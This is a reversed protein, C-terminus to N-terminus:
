RGMKQETDTNCGKSAKEWHAYLVNFPMHLHAVACSSITSVSTFLFCM